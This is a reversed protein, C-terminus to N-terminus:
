RPMPRRASGQHSAVSPAKANMAVFDWNIINRLAALYRLGAKAPDGNHAYDQYYAHKCLDIGLLPTQGHAIPTDTDPLTIVRLEGTDERVLWIWGDGLCNLARYSLADHFADVSGFVSVLERSLEGSPGGGGFPSLCHWYFTHNWAKVAQDSLPASEQFILIELSRDAQSTASMLRNLDAIIEGHHHRYHDDVMGTSLYPELSQKDYPLAPLEFPM